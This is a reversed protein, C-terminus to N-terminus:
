QNDKKIKIDAILRCISRILYVLSFGLFVGFVLTFAIIPGLTIGTGELYSGTILSIGNVLFGVLSLVAMIFYGFIASIKRGM